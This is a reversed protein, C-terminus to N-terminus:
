LLIMVWSEVGFSRYLSDDKESTIGLYLFTRFSPVQLLSHPHGLIKLYLISIGEELLVNINRDESYNETSYIFTVSVLKRSILEAEWAGSLLFFINTSLGEHDATHLESSLLNCNTIM